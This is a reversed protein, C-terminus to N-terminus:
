RGVDLHELFKRAPIIFPSDSFKSLVTQFASRALTTKKMKLYTEGLLVLAEPTLGSSPYNSIAYKARAVAAEFNDEGLYFRAVYLEHRALVGTVVELMYRLEREHKYGPYDSLFAKIASYAESVNSLDREELPPLLLAEGSQDFNAKIIRFRAYSVEPDNPYDHIFSKYETVAEPFKEQAFAADAIRLQALRAFRSYGYKRKVEEFLPGAAEWDRDFFAELAEEYARKADETYQLPAAAHKKPQCGALTTM